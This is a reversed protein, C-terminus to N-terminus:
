VLHAMSTGDRRRYVRRVTVNIQAGSVSVLKRPVIDAAPMEIRNALDDRDRVETDQVKEKM